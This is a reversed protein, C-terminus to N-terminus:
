EAKAEGSRGLKKGLHAEVDKVKGTLRGTAGERDDISIHTLVRSSHRRMNRHCKLITEIVKEEDGELTTQMASLQYNLGSKDVIDLSEAVYKSLEVGVGAPVVSFGAIM